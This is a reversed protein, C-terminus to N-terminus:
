AVPVTARLSQGTGLKTIPRVTVAYTVASKLGTATVQTKTTSMVLTPKGVATLTVQYSTIPSGGTFSPAIWSATLSGRSTSKLSLSRVPLSVTRNILMTIAGPIVIGPTKFRIQGTTTSCVKFTVRGKADSTGALVQGACAKYGSPPIATM